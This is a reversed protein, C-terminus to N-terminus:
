QLEGSAEDTNVVVDSQPARTQQKHRWVTPGKIPSRRRSMGPPGYVRNEVIPVTLSTPSKIRTRGDLADRLAEIDHEAPVSAFRTQWIVALRQGTPLNFTNLRRIDVSFQVPTDIEKFGLNRATTVWGKGFAFIIPTEIESLPDWVFRKILAPDPNIPATLRKSHWPYLELCLVDQNRVSEDRTWRQAFNRNDRHFRNIPHKSSWPLTLYPSTMAWASYSGHEAMSRKFVGSRGQFHMDVGGPNLGLVVLRPDGRDPSLPGIYPEPFAENNVTGEGTGSYASYWRCLDPDDLHPKKGAFFEAVSRDWFKAIERRKSM